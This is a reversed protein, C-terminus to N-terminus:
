GVDVQMEETGLFFHQGLRVATPSNKILPRNNVYTGNKSGLDTLYVVGHSVTISAHVRSLKPNGLMQPRCQSGRGMLVRQREGFYFREGTTVRCLVYRTGVHGGAPWEKTPLVDTTRQGNGARGATIADQMYVAQGRESGRASQGRGSLDAVGYGGDSEREGLSGDSNVNVGRERSLFSRFANFSFTDRENLAFMGLRQALAVDNPTEFRVKRTDALFRLLALPSNQISFPIGDLPVFVFWLRGREDVFVSKSDLLLSRQWLQRNQGTTCSGYACALDTLMGIFADGSLVHQRVYSNLSVLGHVDYTVTCRNSYGALNCATPLFHDHSNGCIWAAQAPNLEENRQPQIVLERHRTTKNLAFRKKM